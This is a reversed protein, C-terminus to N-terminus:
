CLFSQLLFTSMWDGGGKQFVFHRWWSLGEEATVSSEVVWFTIGCMSLCSEIRLKISILINCVALVLRLCILNWTKVWVVQGLLQHRGIASPFESVIIWLSSKEVSVSWSLLLSSFMFVGTRQELDSIRVEKINLWHVQHKCCMFCAFHLVLLCVSRSPKMSMPVCLYHTM